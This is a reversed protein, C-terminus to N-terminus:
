IRHLLYLWARAPAQAYRRYAHRAGASPHRWKAEGEPSGYLIAGVLMGAVICVMVLIPTACSLLIGWSAGLGAGYILVGLLLGALLLSGGGALVVLLRRHTM